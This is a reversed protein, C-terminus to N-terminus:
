LSSVVNEFSQLCQYSSKMITQLISCDTSHLTFANLKYNVKQLSLLSIGIETLVKLFSNLLGLIVFFVLNKQFACVQNFWNFAININKNKAMKVLLKKAYCVINFLIWRTLLNYQMDQSHLSVASQKPSFLLEINNRQLLIEM